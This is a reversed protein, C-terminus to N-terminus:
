NAAPLPEKDVRRDKMVLENVERKVGPALFFRAMIAELNGADDSVADLAGSGKAWEVLLAPDGNISKHFLRRLVNKSALWDGEAMLFRAYDGVFASHSPTIRALSDYYCRYLKAALDTEGSDAFIRPLQWRMEFITMQDVALRRDLGNAAVELILRKHLEELEDRLGLQSLARIRRSMAAVSDFQAPAVGQSAKALLPRVGELLREGGESLAIAEGESALLQAALEWGSASWAQPDIELDGGNEPLTAVLLRALELPAPDSNALGTGRAASLVMAPSNGARVALKELGERWEQPNASATERLLALWKVAVPDESRLTEFLLGVVDEVASFKVEAEETKEDAAARGPLDGALRLQILRFLLESRVGIQDSKRAQLMLMSEAEARMGAAHLIEAVEAILLPQGYDLAVRALQGLEVVDRQGDMANLKVLRKLAEVEAGPVQDFSMDALWEMAQKHDGNEILLDVARVRDDLELMGQQRLHLYVRVAAEGDGKAEHVRALAAHYSASWDLGGAGPTRGAQLDFATRRDKGDKEGADPPFDPQTDARAYSALTEEDRALELFYAHETILYGDTMGPARPMERALYGNLLELAAEHDGSERCADFFGRVLTFDDPEERILRDYLPVVDRHFGRATLMNVLEVRSTQDVLQQDFLKVALRRRPPSLDELRWLLRAIEFHAYQSDVDLEGSPVPQQLPAFAAYFDSRSANAPLYSALQHVRYEKESWFDTRLSDRESTIAVWPRTGGSRLQMLRNLSRTGEAAEGAAYDILMKAELELMETGAPHDSVKKMLRARLAEREAANEAISFAEAAVQFYSTPLGWAPLLALSSRDSFIDGARTRAEISRLVLADVAQNLAQKREDDLGLWQALKAIRYYDAAVAADPNLETTVRALRFAALTLGQEVLEDILHYGVSRSMTVERMIQRIVDESLSAEDERVLLYMAVLPLTNPDATEAPATAAIRALAEESRGGGLHVAPLRDIGEMESPQEKLWAVVAEPRDMKLSLLLFDLQDAVLSVPLMTERLLRHSRVSEGAHHFAWLKETLSVEGPRDWRRVWRDRGDAVQAATPGDAGENIEAGVGIAVLKAAEEIARLRLFADGRPVRHFEPHPRRYRATLAEQLELPMYRYDQIGRVFNTLGGSDPRTGVGSFWGGDIVPLYEFDREAPSLAAEATEEIVQEFAEMAGALDASERRLLGLELQATADWSRLRVLEELVRIAATREGSRQYYDAMSKLFDADQGFKGELRKRIRDADAVRLDRELMGILSKWSEVDAEEEGDALAIMQRRYYIAAKLDSTEGAMEGLEALLERDEGSMYYAKKMAAFAADSEGMSRHIRALAEPYFREFPAQQAADQYMDLLEGPLYQRNALSLQSDFHKRKQIIDTEHGILDMLAELAEKPRGLEVLTNTLQKIVRRKEFINGKVYARRWVEVQDNKRGQQQYVAALSKLTSLTAESDRALEELLRVAEDEYGLKFRVEAWRQRYERQNEKDVRALLELQRAMLLTNETQEALELMLREAELVPGDPDHLGSLQHYMEQHDQQRFAWWAVRYRNEVSPEQQATKKIGNYFDTLAKPAKEDQIGLNGSGASRAAAIARAAMKRRYDAMAQPSSGLPPPSPMRGSAGGEAPDEEDTLGRLLSFLRQDIETKDDITESRRWVSEYTLLAADLDEKEVEIEARQIALDLRDPSLAIAAV